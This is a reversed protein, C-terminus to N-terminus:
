VVSCANPNEDRFMQEAAAIYGSGYGNLRLNPYGKPYPCKYPCLSYEPAGNKEGEKEEESAEGGNENVQVIVVAKKLKRALYEALAKMDM